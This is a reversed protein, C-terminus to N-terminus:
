QMTKSISIWRVMKLRLEFLRKQRGTLNAIGEAGDDDGDMGAEEDSHEKSGDSGDDADEQQNPAAVMNPQVNGENAQLGLVHFPFRNSVKGYVLQSVCFRIKIICLNMVYLHIGTSLM